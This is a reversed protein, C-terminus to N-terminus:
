SNEAKSEWVGDEENKDGICRAFDGGPPPVKSDGVM